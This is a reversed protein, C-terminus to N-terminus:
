DSGEVFIPGEALGQMFQSLYPDESDLMEAQSGQWIIKGQYLFAVKDAIARVSSMDHTITLTAAGLDQVCERILQNIVDTMIPDLGTTPEDFFIIDPHDAIARALGVRKHMGGSLEAPSRDMLEAGLGVRMLASLAIDRGEAETCNRNQRASFAVNEWIKLSDFLAGNQFLMGFQQNLAHQQAENLGTTETGNVKISGADPRMLGLITKMMVSKGSGSGGIVVVSEGQEITLDVGKLVQKPGFGKHVDTLEVAKHSTM